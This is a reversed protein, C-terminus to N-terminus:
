GRATMAVVRRLKEVVESIIEIAREIDDETTMAGLTLVLAGKAQEESLGM